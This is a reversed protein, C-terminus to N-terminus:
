LGDIQREEPRTALRREGLDPHSGRRDVDLREGLTVLREKDGECGMLDEREGLFPPAVKVASGSVRGIKLADNTIRVDIAIMTAALAPVFRQNAAMAPAAGDRPRTM